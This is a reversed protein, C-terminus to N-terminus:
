PSVELAAPAPIGTDAPAAGSRRKSRHDGVDSIPTEQGPSWDLLPMGTLAEVEAAAKFFAARAEVARQVAEFLTRQADLLDLYGFRGLRYGARVSEFSERAEGLVESSLARVEFHAARLRQHSAQLQRELRLRTAAAQREASDAHHRAAELQARNADFLPLPLGIGAVVASAQTENIWRYGVDINLDPIARSREWKIQAQMQAVAAQQQRNQPHEALQSQLADLEPLTTPIAVGGLASDFSATSRGWFAALELQAQELARSAKEEEIGALILTVRSRKVELPTVKGAGAKTQLVEVTERALKVMELANTRRRQAALLEVFAATTERYVRLREAEYAWGAADRRHAAVSSRADRKGGLEIPQSLTGTIQVTDASFGDNPGALIVDEAAVEFSPNPLATAQQAEAALARFHARKAALGPNHRLALRRAQELNLAGEAGLNASAAIQSAGGETATAAASLEAGLPRPTPWPPPTGTDACASTLLLIVVPTGHRVVM